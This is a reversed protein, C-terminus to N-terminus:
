IFKCKLGERELYTQMAGLLGFVDFNKWDSLDLTYVATKHEIGGFTLRVKKYSNPGFTLTFDKKLAIPSQEKATVFQFYHM